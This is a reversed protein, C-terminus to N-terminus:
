SMRLRKMDEKLLENLMVLTLRVEDQCAYSASDRIPCPDSLRWDERHKWGTRMFHSRYNVDSVTKAPGQIIMERAVSLITQFLPATQTAFQM